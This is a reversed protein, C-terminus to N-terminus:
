QVVTLQVQQSPCILVSIQDLATELLQEGIQNIM